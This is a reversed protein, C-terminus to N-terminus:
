NTKLHVIDPYCSLLIDQYAASWMLHQTKGKELFPDKVMNYLEAKNGDAETWFYRKTEKIRFFLIM